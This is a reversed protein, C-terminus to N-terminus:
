LILYLTLSSYYARAFSRVYTCALTNSDLHLDRGMEFHLGIATLSFFRPSCSPFFLIPRKSLVELCSWCGFYSYLNAHLDKM